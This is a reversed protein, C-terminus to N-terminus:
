QAVVAPDMWLVEWIHGDLDQFSWGYMVGQDVPDGARRGGSAVAKDVMGQVEERSGASLAILTEAHTATDCIEKPMFSKFYPEVLLMVFADDNVVMCTANETTFQPNFQFGLETFFAISAALDRVPMNVFIKRTM